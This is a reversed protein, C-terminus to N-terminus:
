GSPKLPDTEMVLALRNVEEPPSSRFVNVYGESGMEEKGNSNLDACINGGRIDTGSKELCGTQLNRYTTLM